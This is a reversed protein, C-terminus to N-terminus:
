NDRKRWHVSAVELQWGHGDARECLGLSAPQVGCTKCVIRRIFAELPVDPPARRERLALRIPVYTCHICERRGCRNFMIRVWLEDCDALPLKLFPDVPHMGRIHVLVSLSFAQDNASKTHTPRPHQGLM